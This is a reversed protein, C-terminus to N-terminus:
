FRFAVRLVFYIAELFFDGKKNNKTTQSDYNSGQTSSAGDYISVNDSTNGRHHSIPMYATQLSDAPQEEEQKETEIWTGNGTSYSDSNNTVANGSKGRSNDTAENQINKEYLEDVEEDSLENLQSHNVLSMNRQPNKDKNKFYYLDDEETRPAKNQALVPAVFFFVIFFCWLRNQSSFFSLCSM